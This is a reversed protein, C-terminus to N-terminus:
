CSGVVALRDQVVLVVCVAFASGTRSAEVWSAAAWSEPNM